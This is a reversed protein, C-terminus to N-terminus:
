DGRRGHHRQQSATYGRGADAADGSEGHRCPLAASTWMGALRLWIERQQQDKTTEAAFASEQAFWEFVSAIDMPFLGDTSKRRDLIKRFNKHNDTPWGVFRSQKERVLRLWSPWAKWTEWTKKLRAKAEELTAVKDSRAMPPNVTLSWFWRLHEPGGRTQYIRGIMWDGCYVTYDPRDKDIGAGLGTPRMILPM